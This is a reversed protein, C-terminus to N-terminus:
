RRAAPWTLVTSRAVDRVRALITLVFMAVRKLARTTARAATMTTKPSSMSRVKAMTMTSLAPIPITCSSRALFVSSLRETSTADVTSTTRSPERRDTAMSSITRPSRTHRLTPSWTGTSPVMASDLPKSASSDESVPSDSGTGFFSPSSTRDPLATTAPIALMTAVRTPPSEHIECSSFCARSNSGARDSSRWPM